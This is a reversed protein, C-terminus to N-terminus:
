RQPIRLAVGTETRVIEPLIMPIPSERYHAMLAAASPFDALDELTRITPFIMPLTGSEHRELAESATLWVADVM